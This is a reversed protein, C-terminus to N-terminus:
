EKKKGHTAPGCLYRSRLLSCPVTRFLNRYMKSSLENSTATPSIAVIGPVQLLSGVLVASASDYPGTFAIVPHSSNTTRNMGCQCFPDTTKVLEYAMTMAISITECYDRIDYYCRSLSTQFFAPIMTLANLRLSCPRLMVLVLPSCSAAITTQDMSTSMSAPGGRNPRSTCTATIQHINLCFITLLFSFM